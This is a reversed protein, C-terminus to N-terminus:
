TNSRNSYPSLNTIREDIVPSGVTFHYLSQFQQDDLGLLQHFLDDLFCGIGTGRQQHAEAQLYLVQGLLGAEWYLERYRWATDDSTLTADFAALMGLSFASDAAIAQHCSIQKSMARADGEQLLYLPLQTDIAQWLFQPHMAQQLAQKADESRPLAYLGAPLGDVRHVFLVPHLRASHPLLDFPLSQEPHLASLIAFFRDKSMSKDPQFALASRRQKILSGNITCATTAVTHLTATILPSTSPQKCCAHSVQEIMQWDYCPHSDLLSPLGHWEVGELLGHVNSDNLPQINNIRLLLDPTEPEVGAFEDDRDIGCLSALSADSLATEISMQWGLLAASYRIAAMAHGVDLQCYRYAREGYKWAERWHASSLAIYCQGDISSAKLTARKEFQHQQSQYHYIGRSLGELEGCILYAETPHLNGSSPNCRVTWSDVGFVKTAALSLSYELLQALSALSIAASSHQQIPTTKSFPLEIREAGQYHRYPSPQAEWDLSAPGPAYGNVGHKSRQHYAKVVGLPSSLVEPPLGPQSQCLRRSQIKRM